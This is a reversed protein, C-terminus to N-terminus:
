TWEGGALDAGTVAGAANERLWRELDAREDESAPATWETGPDDLADTPKEGGGGWEPFFLHLRDPNNAAMRSRLDDYFSRARQRADAFMLIEVAREQVRSLSPGTL